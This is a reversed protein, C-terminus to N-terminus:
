TRLYRTSNVVAPSAAIDEGIKNTAVVTLKDNPTIVFVTGRESGVFIRGASALPTAYYEGGQGLRRTFVDNGTLLDVSTLFGGKKVYYVRNDYILPSAVYPLKKSTEWIVPSSNGRPIEVRWLENRGPRFETPIKGESRNEGRVGRFQPWTLDTPSKALTLPPHVMGLVLLVSLASMLFRFMM